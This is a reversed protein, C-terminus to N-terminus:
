VFVHGVKQGRFLPMNSSLELTRRLHASFLAWFTPVTQTGLVTGKAGLFPRMVPTKPVGRRGFLMLEVADCCM